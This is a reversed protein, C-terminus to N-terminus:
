PRPSWVSLPKVKVGTACPRFGRPPNSACVLMRAPRDSPRSALGTFRPAHSARLIIASGGSSGGGFPEEAGINQFIPQLMQGIFMAEFEQAVRRAEALNRAHGVKVNGQSSLLANQVQLSFTSDTLNNM